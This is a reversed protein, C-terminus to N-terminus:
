DPFSLLANHISSDLLFLRYHDNPPTTSSDTSWKELVSQLDDQLRKLSVHIYRIGPPTIGKRVMMWRQVMTIASAYLEIKSILGDVDILLISNDESIHKFLDKILNNLIKWVEKECSTDFLIPRILDLFRAQLGPNPCDHILKEVIQVQSAPIYRNILSTILGSIYAVHKKYMLEEDVSSTRCSIMQDSLIQFVELPADPLEHFSEDNPNPIELKLSQDPVVQLLSELFSLPINSLLKPYDGAKKFLVTAHPFWVYWVFSPDYLSPREQFATRALLSLGLGNWDTTMHAVKEQGNFQSAKNIWWSIDNQNIHFDIDEDDPSEVISETPRRPNLWITLESSTYDNFHSFANCLSQIIHYMDVFHVDGQVMSSIKLLDSIRQCELEVVTSSTGVM